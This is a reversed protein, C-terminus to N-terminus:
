KKVLPVGSPFNDPNKYYGSSVKDVYGNPIIYGSVREDVAMLCELVLRPNVLCSHELLLRLAETNEVMQGRGVEDEEGPIAIRCTVNTHANGFKPGPKGTPRLVSLAKARHPFREKLAEIDPPSGDSDFHAHNLGLNRRVRIIGVVSSGFVQAMQPDTLGEFFFSELEQPNIKRHAAM